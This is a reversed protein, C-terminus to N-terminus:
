LKDVQEAILRTYNEWVELAHIKYYNGNRNLIDLVKIKNETSYGEYLRTLEINNMFSDDKSGSPQLNILSKGVQKYSKVVVNGDEDSGFVPRYIDFCRLDRRLLRM